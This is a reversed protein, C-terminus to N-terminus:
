FADECYLVSGPVVVELNDGNRHPTAMAGVTAGSGRNDSLPIPRMHPRGNGPSPAQNELFLAQPYEDVDYGTPIPPNNSKYYALNETRRKTANLRDPTVIRAFGLAQADKIHEASKPYLLGDVCALGLALKITPSTSGESIAMSARTPYVGILPGGSFIMDANLGHVSVGVTAKPELYGDSIAFFSLRNTKGPLLDSPQLTLNLEFGPYDNLPLVPVVTQGNFMVRVVDGDTLTGNDFIQLKIRKKRFINNAVSHQPKTTVSQTSIDSSPPKPKMKRKPSSCEDKFPSRGNQVRWAQLRERWDPYTLIHDFGSYWVDAEIFEEAYKAYYDQLIPDDRRQKELSVIFGSPVSFNGLKVCRLGHGKRSPKDNDAWVTSVMCIAALLVSVSRYVTNIKVMFIV